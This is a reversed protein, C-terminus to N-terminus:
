EHGRLRHGHGHILSDTAQARGEGPLAWPVQEGVRAGTDVETEDRPCGPRKPERDKKFISIFKKCIVLRRDASWRPDTGLDM